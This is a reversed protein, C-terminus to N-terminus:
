WGGAKSSLLFAVLSSSPDNFEDCQIIIGIHCVIYILTPDLMELLSRVAIEGNKTAEEDFYERRISM